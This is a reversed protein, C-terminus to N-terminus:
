RSFAEHLISQKLAKLDALQSSQLAQLARAKEALVDLKKVIAKQEALPPLPIKIKRLTSQNIGAQGVWRTCMKEFVKERWYKRFILLLWEPMVVEAALRIRTLHNSFAYPVDERIIITKGVLEASNTNNFIIDGKELGFSKTDVLVKPIRVVKDLNLEGSLDINHTRLHIVGKPVENSKGCAFGSKIEFAFDGLSGEKWGKSEPQFLFEQLAAPLLQAAITQSETRLRMAEDIKAFQKEIKEVIRRQEEVPPLPIELEYVRNRNIGPKVGVALRPLHASKFFYFLYDIDVQDNGFVYYTVDSPWFKGSVRTLEGASGKRGVIIAEGSVLVKNTRGLVGNAGYVPFEGDSDRYSKDIGKGYKLEIVEGLKKTPWSM